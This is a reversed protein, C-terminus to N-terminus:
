LNVQKKYGNFSTFVQNLSSGSTIDSDMSLNMEKVKDLKGLCDNLEQIKPYLAHDQKSQLDTSISSYKMSISSLQDIDNM